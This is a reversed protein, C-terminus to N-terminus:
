KMVRTISPWHCFVRFDNSLNIWERKTNRRKLRFIKGSNVISKFKPSYKLSRLWIYFNVALSVTPVNAEFGCSEARRGRSWKWRLGPAAAKGMRWTFRAYWINHRISTQGVSRVNCFKAHLQSYNLLLTYHNTVRSHGTYWSMGVTVGILCCSKRRISKM